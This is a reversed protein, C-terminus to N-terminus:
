GCGRGPAPGPRSRTERDGGPAPAADAGSGALRLLSLAAPQASRSWRLRDPHPATTAGPPIPLCARAAPASSPGASPGTWRPRARGRSPDPRRRELRHPGRAQRPSPRPLRGSRAAALRAGDARAAGRLARRRCGLRRRADHGPRPGRGAAAVRRGPVGGVGVVDSPGPRVGRWPALRTTRVTGAVDVSFWAGQTWGQEVLDTRAQELAARVRDLRRLWAVGPRGAARRLLAADRGAAGGAGAVARGPPRPRDPRPRHDDHQSCAGARPSLVLARSSPGSARVPAPRQHHREGEGVVHLGLQVRKAPSPERGSPGRHTRM